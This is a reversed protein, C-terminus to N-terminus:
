GLVADYTEEILSTMVNSSYLRLATDYANQAIDKRLAEDSYLKEISDIWDGYECLFGNEGNRIISRYVATPTACSPVKVAGAEFFKLESKAENFENPVLPILNVDVSGIEYQLQEYPVFPRFRVRNKRALKKLEADMDMFGVIVLDMNGHKNLLYSLEKGISLFDTHHSPSGSFYGLVFRGTDAVRNQIVYESEELQENNMFNPIVYTPKSFDGELERKLAPTTTIFADCNKAAMYYSVTSGFHSSVSNSASHIGIHSIYEIAHEPKYYRDDMDFVVPINGRHALYILNDIEPFWQTRQLVVISIRNLYQKIAPIESVLFYTIEYKKSNELAQGFNTCRYRFTSNDFMEKFYAVKKRGNDHFLIEVRDGFSLTSLAISFNKECEIRYM